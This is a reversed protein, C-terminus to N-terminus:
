CNITEKDYVQFYGINAIHARENKHIQRIMCVMEHSCCCMSDVFIM